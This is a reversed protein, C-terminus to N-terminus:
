SVAVGCCCRLIADYMAPRILSFTHATSDAIHRELGELFPFPPSESRVIVCPRTTRYIDYLWDCDDVYMGDRQTLLADLIDVVRRDSVSKTFVQLRDRRDDFLCVRVGDACHLPRVFEIGRGGERM